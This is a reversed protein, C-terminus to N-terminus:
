RRRSFRPLFRGARAMYERYEDGFRDVLKREETPTRVALLAFVALGVGGILWNRTLLFTAVVLLLFGLYYPHRVWRYPGTTVLTHGSRVVVTDTLNQGLVELTWHVFLAAAVGLVAGFWRLWAPLALSAWAMWGPEILYALVSLGLLLGAPRLTLRTLPGEAQSSVREGCRAAQFRHWVATGATLAFIIGLAIRACTEETM